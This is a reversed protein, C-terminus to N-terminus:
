DTTSGWKRRARAGAQPPDDLADLRAEQHDQRKDLATNIFEQGEIKGVHGQVIDAIRQFHGAMATLRQELNVDRKEQGVEVATLRVGVQASSVVLKALAGLAALGVVSSVTFAVTAITPTTGTAAEAGVVAASAVLAGGIAKLAHIM